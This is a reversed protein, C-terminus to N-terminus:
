DTRDYYREIEKPDIGLANILASVTKAHISATEANIIKTVGTRTMGTEDCIESVTKGSAIIRERLFSILGKENENMIRNREIDTVEM